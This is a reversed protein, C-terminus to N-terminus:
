DVCVVIWGLAVARGARGLVRRVGGLGLGERRYGESIPIGM